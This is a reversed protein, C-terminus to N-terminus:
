TGRQSEAFITVRIAKQSGDAQPTAGVGVFSNPKIDALTAKVVGFVAVNPTVSVKVDGGSTKVVLTSGDVSEVKGVVPVAQPAQAYASTVAFAAAFAAATLLRTTTMTTGGRIPHM